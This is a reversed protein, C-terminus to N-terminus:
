GGGQSPRSLIGSADQGTRDQGAQGLQVLQSKAQAYKSLEDNFTLAQELTAAIEWGASTKRVCGARDLIGRGSELGAKGRQGGVMKEWTKRSFGLSNCASRSVNGGPWVRTIFNYLRKIDPDVDPEISKVEHDVTAELQPTRPRIVRWKEDQDPPPSPTALALREWLLDLPETVVRRNDLIFRVVAGALTFVFGGAAVRGAWAWLDGGHLDFVAPAFLLVGVGVALGVAGGIALAQLTPVLVDGEITARQPTPAHLGRVADQELRRERLWQEYNNMAVEGNVTYFAVDTASLTM